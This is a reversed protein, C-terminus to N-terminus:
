NITHQFVRVCLHRFHKKFRMKPLLQELQLPDGEIHTRRVVLLCIILRVSNFSTVLAISCITVMPSKDTWYMKDYLELFTEKNPRTPFSAEKVVTMHRAFQESPFLQKIALPYPYFSPLSENADSAPVLSSLAKNHYSAYLILTQLLPLTHWAWVMDYVYQATWIM